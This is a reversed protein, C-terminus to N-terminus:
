AVSHARGGGAPSALISRGSRAAVLSEERWTAVVPPNAQIFFGTGFGRPQRTVKVIAHGYLAYLRQIDNNVQASAPASLLILAM